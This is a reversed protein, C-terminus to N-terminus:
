PAVVPDFNEAIIAAVTRAIEDKPTDKRVYGAAGLEVATEVNQRTVLSTLMVVTSEPDAARLRRLTEMGDMVPMSVDLLVLGPREREYAALGEQGNAAEIIRYKGLQQLVLRVFLRVHSEDDILLITDNFKM